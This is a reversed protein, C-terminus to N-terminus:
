VGDGYTKRLANNAIAEIGGQNTKDTITRLASMLQLVESDLREAKAKLADIEAQKSQECAKWGAKFNRFLRNTQRAKESCIDENSKDVYRGEVEKWIVADPIPRYTEFRARMANLETNSM